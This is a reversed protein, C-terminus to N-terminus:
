DSKNSISCILPPLVVNTNAYDNNKFETKLMLEESVEFRPSSESFDADAEIHVAYTDMSIHITWLFEMGIQIGIDDKEISLISDDFWDDKSFAADYDFTCDKWNDFILWVFYSSLKPNIYDSLHLGIRISNPAISFKIISAEHFSIEMEGDVCCLCNQENWVCEM